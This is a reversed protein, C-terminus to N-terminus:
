DCEKYGVRMAARELEEWMFSPLTLVSGDETLQAGEAEFERFLCERALNWDPRREKYPKVMDLYDKRFPSARM